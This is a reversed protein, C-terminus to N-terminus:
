KLGIDCRLYMFNLLRCGWIREKITTEQRDFNEIAKFIFREMKGKLNSLLYQNKLYLVLNDYDEKLKENAPDKLMAEIKEYGFISDKKIERYYEESLGNLKNKKRIDILVFDESKNLYSRDMFKKVINDLEPVSIQDEINYINIDRGAQCNHTGNQTLELQKESNM